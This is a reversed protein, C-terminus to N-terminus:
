LPRGFLVPWHDSGANHDVTATWHTTQVDSVAYDLEGGSQQTPKGSNYLRSGAPITLTRPERNFDGMIAWHRGGANAAALAVLHAADNGGPSAAHASTFMTDNAPNVVGLLPRYVSPIEVVQHPQWATVMGLNKSPTTLIYLHREWGRSGEKWLYEAVNGHHGVPRAATPPVAPVEQLAVVDRKEALKYVGAWRDRGGQINWTAMRHADPVRPAAHAPGPWALLGGLALLVAALLAVPRPRRLPTTTDMAALTPGVM